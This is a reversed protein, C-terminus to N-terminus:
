FASFRSWPTCDLVGKFVRYIGRRKSALNECCDVVPVGGERGLGSFDELDTVTTVMWGYM